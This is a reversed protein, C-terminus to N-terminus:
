EMQDSCYESVPLNHQKAYHRGSWYGKRFDSYFFKLDFQSAVESGVRSLVPHDRHPSCLTASTFYTIGNGIASRAASDMILHAVTERHKRELRSRDAIHKISKNDTYPVMLQNYEDPNYDALILELEKQQALAQVGTLLYCYEVHSLYPDYYYLKPLFNAKELESVLHSACGACCVHMIIPIRDQEM